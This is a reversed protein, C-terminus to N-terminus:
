MGSSSVLKYITDPYSTPTKMNENNKLVINVFNFNDFHCLLHKNAITLSVSSHFILFSSPANAKLDEYFLFLPM